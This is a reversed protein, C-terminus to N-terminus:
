NSGNEYFEILNNIYQIFNGVTMDPINAIRQEILTNNKYLSFYVGQYNLKVKYDGRILTLAGDETTGTWSGVSYLDTVLVGLYSALREVQSTSLTAEGKLVRGLALNPYRVSPFLVRSLEEMQPKYHEIVKNIDFHQM